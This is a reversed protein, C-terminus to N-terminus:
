RTGSCVCSSPTASSPSRARGVHGALWRRAARSFMKKRWTGCSRATTSCAPRCADAALLRDSGPAQPPLHEVWGGPLRGDRHEHRHGRRVHLGDQRLPRQHRGAVGGSSSSTASRTSRATTAMQYRRLRRASRPRSRAGTSRRSASSWSSPPTSWRWVSRWGSRAPSSSPRRTSRPTAASTTRRPPASARWAVPRGCRVCSAIPPSGCAPGCGSTTTRSSRGSPRRRLSEKIAILTRRASIYRDAGYSKRTRAGMVCIGAGVVSRIININRTNLDGLESDTFKTQVGVANTLGAIVGAPARFVGVTADIRAMMGM